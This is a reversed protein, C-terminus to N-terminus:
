PHIHLSIHIRILPTSVSLSRFYPLTAPDSLIKALSHKDLLQETVDAFESADPQHSSWPYLM